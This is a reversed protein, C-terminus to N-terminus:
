RLSYHECVFVQDLIHDEGALGVRYILALADPRLHRLM